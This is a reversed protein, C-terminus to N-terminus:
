RPPGLRTTPTWSPPDSAPFSEQSAEEVPDDEVHAEVIDIEGGRNAPGIPVYQPAPVSPQQMM